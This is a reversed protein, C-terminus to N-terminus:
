SVSKLKMMDKSVKMGLTLYFSVSIRCQTVSDGNSEIQLTRM